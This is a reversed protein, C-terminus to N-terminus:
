QGSVMRQFHWRDNYLQYEALRHLSKEQDYGALFHMATGDVFGEELMKRRTGDLPGGVFTVWREYARTPMALIFQSLLFVLFSGIVLLAALRLWGTPTNPVWDPAYAQFVAFMVVLTAYDILGSAAKGFIRGLWKM